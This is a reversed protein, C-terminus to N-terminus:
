IHLEDFIDTFPLLGALHKTAIFEAAIVAGLAFGDRSRATHKLEITDFTSDWIVMHTGPHQGGRTATVHLEEPEPARQLSESVIKKKISSGDLVINATELATGSPSDVKFKHHFEHLHVDYEKEFAKMHVLAKDLVRWFLNVGVSFNGSWIAGSRAKRLLADYEQRKEQWGTTGIILPIRAEALQPLYHALASPHSFDIWVDAAKPDMEPRNEDVIATLTHGRATLAMKLPEGMRGYGLLGIKLPKSVAM